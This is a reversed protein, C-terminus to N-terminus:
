TCYIRFLNGICFVYSLLYKELHKASNVCMFFYSTGLPEFCLLQFGSNVLTRLTNATRTSCSICWPHSLCSRLGIFRLSNPVELYFRSMQCLQVSLSFTSWCFFFNDIEARPQSHPSFLIM